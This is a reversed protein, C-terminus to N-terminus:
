CRYLCVLVVGGAEEAREDEVRLTLVTLEVESLVRSATWRRRAARCPRARFSQVADGAPECYWAASWDPQAMTHDRPSGPVHDNVLMPQRCSVSSACGRQSTWVRAERRLELGDGVAHPPGDARHGGSPVAVDVGPASPLSCGGNQGGPDGSWTSGRGGSEAPVSEVDPKLAASGNELFFTRPNPGGAQGRDRLHPLHDRRDRHHAGEDDQGVGDGDKRAAGGGGGNPRPVAARRRQQWCCRRPGAPSLRLAAAERRPCRQPRPGQPRPGPAQPRPGPGAAGERGRPGLRPDTDRAQRPPTAAAVEGVRLGHRAEGADPRACEGGDSDNSVPMPGLGLRNAAAPDSDSFTLGPGLGLGLGIEPLRVRTRTELGFESGTRSLRVPDSDSDSDTAGCMPGLGLFDSRTRALTRNENEQQSQISNSNDELGM